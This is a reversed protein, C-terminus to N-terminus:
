GEFLDQQHQYGAPPATLRYWAMRSLTPARLTQIDWGTRRLDHIVTALRWGQGADIAHPTSLIDGRMLRGIVWSKRTM